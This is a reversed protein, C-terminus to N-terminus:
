ATNEQDGVTGLYIIDVDWCVRGLSWVANAKQLTRESSSRCTFARSSRRRHVWASLITRECSPANQCECRVGMEITSGESLVSPSFPCM